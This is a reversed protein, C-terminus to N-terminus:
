IYYFRGQLVDFMVKWDQSCCILNFTPAKNIVLKNYTTCDQKQAYMLLLSTLFCYKQVNEVKYWGDYGVDQLDKLFEIKLM